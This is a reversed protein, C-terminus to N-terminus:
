FLGFCGENTEETLKFRIPMHFTTRVAKGKQIGPEWRPMNKVVRMAAKDCGGGIGRRVEVNTIRGDAEVIFSIYVIGQIGSERAKKPYNLNEQIYKMRAEEGGPYRPQEDVVMFLSDKEQSLGYNPVSLLFGFTFLLLYYHIKM